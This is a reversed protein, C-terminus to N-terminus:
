GLIVIGGAAPKLLYFFLDIPDVLLHQCTPERSDQMEAAPRAQIGTPEAFHPMITDANVVRRSGYRIPHILGLFLIETAGVQMLINPYRLIACSKPQYHQYMTFEIDESRGICPTDEFLSITSKGAVPKKQKFWV